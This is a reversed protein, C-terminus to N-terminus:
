PHKIDKVDKKGQVDSTVQFKEFWPVKSGQPRPPAVATPTDWGLSGPLLAASAGEQGISNQLM